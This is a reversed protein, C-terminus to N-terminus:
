SYRRMGVNLVLGLLVTSVLLSSGGYSMLPLPIGTIPFLGAVMGINYFAQFAFGAMLGAVLYAGEPDKCEAAIRLGRGLIFVYLLVVLISGAFGQEEALVSFVFDTHQEPIFGLQSQRGHLYGRGWIEGAGIAIKAQDAQWSAGRLDSPNWMSTIRKLQYPKLLYKAAVPMSLLGLISWLAITKARLGAVFIMVAVPPILSLATGLDPEKVILLCPVGLLLAPILLHRTALETNKRRALHGALCLPLFIRMLESPQLRFSGVLLWRRAGMVLTGALLVAVLLAVGGLYPLLSWRILRRYDLMLLAFLVIMSLGCWQLQRFTFGSIGGSIGHFTASHIYAVGLGMLLLIAVLFAWDFSWFYRRDIM